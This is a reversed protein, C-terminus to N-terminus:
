LSSFEYAGAREARTYHRGLLSDRCRLVPRRDPCKRVSTEDASPRGRSRQYKNRLKGKEPYKRSLTSDADLAERAIIPDSSSLVEAARRRLRLRQRFLHARATHTPDSSWRGVRRDHDM